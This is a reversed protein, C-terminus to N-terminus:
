KLIKDHTPKLYEKYLKHDDETYTCFVILDFEYDSSKIYKIVTSIATNCATKKSFGFLGTSICCFAIEKIGNDKAVNLCNKYCKALMEHDEFDDAIPGTTHIIKKCPLKYAGTIKATGTPIGGLKRCEEYLEKGAGLHIASDVCHGPITCGLGSSNSANVICEINLKTIDQRIVKIKTM